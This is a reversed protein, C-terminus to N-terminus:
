LGYDGKDVKSNSSGDTGIVTKSGDKVFQDYSILAVCLIFSVFATGAKGPEQNPKTLSRCTFLFILGFIIGALFAFNMTAESIKKMFGILNDIWGGLGTTSTAAMAPSSMIMMAAVIVKSKLGMKTDM